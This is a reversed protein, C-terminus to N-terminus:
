PHSEVSCNTFEEEFNSVDNDRKLISYLASEDEYKCNIGVKDNRVLSTAQDNPYAENKRVSEKITAQM